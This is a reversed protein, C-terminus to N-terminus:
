HAEPDPPLTKLAAFFFLTEIPLNNRNTLFIIRMSRSFASIM